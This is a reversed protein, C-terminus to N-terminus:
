TLFLLYLISLFIVLMRTEKFYDKVINKENAGGELSNCKPLKERIVGYLIKVDCIYQM